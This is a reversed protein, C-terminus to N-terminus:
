PEIAQMVEDPGAFEEDQPLGELAREVETPAGEGRATEILEDRDAPYDVGRLHRQIDIPDALL